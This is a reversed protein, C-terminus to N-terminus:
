SEGETWFELIEKVPPVVDFLDSKQDDQLKVLYAVIIRLQHQGRSAMVSQTKGKM